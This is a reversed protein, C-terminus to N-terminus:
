IFYPEQHILFKPLKTLATPYISQILQLILLIALNLHIFPLLTLSFVADKSYQFQIM